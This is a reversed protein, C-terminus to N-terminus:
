KKNKIREYLASLVYLNRKTYFHHVHTIGIKDNRRSEEGEPMRDTPYWYPIDMEEIKQILEM